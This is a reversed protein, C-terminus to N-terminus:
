KLELSLNEAFLEQCKKFQSDFQDMQSLIDEEESLANFKEDLYTLDIVIKELSLLNANQHAQRLVNGLKKINQYFQENLDKFKNQSDRYTTLRDLSSSLQIYATEQSGVETEKWPTLCVPCNETTITEFLKKSSEWVEQFIAEKTTERLRRIEENADKLQLLNKKWISLAGTDEKLLFIQIAELNKKSIVIQSTVNIQAKLHDRLEELKKIYDELEELSQVSKPLELYKQIHISCWSFISDPDHETIEGDTSERIDRLREIIERDPNANILDNQTTTLHKLVEELHELGLWRSIESYKDRPDMDVVFRRLDHQRLVRQAPSKAIVESLESPIPDSRGTKIQRTVTVEKRLESNKLTVTIDSPINLEDALVHPIAHKGGRESDASGKGLHEVSGDLSFLYEIADAYGSKGCGNPAFIAISKGEEFNFDGSKNLVGKVGQINLQTVKWSM